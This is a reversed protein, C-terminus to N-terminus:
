YYEYCFSHKGCGKAINKAAYAFENEALLLCKYLALSTEETVATILYASKEKIGGKSTTMDWHKESSLADACRESLTGLVPNVPYKTSGTSLFFQYRLM